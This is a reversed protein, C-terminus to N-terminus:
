EQEEQSDKQIEESQAQAEKQAQKKALKEAQAKEHKVLDEGDIWELINKKHAFLILLSLVIATIELPLTVGLLFEAYFVLAVTAVVSARGVIKKGFTFFVAIFTGLTLLALIYNWAFLVGGTTAVGKGGKFKLFPSFVHGLVAALGVLIEAIDYYPTDSNAYIKFLVVPIIGKAMDMLLVPMFGQWFGFQRYVNTSGINGSGVKRIDVGRIASYLLGYPVSGSLFGLGVFLVYLFM